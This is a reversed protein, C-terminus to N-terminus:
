CLSQPVFSAIRGPHAGSGCLYLGQIAPSSYGVSKSTPRTLYLQDLSMAGHFINGGTLGFIRELDPPSLVEHGVILDKFGPAYAEVWDFM